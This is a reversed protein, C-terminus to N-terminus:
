SAGGSRISRIFRGIVHAICAVQLHPVDIRCAVRRHLRVERQISSDLSCSLSSCHAERLLMVISSYCAGERLVIYHIVLRVDSVGDCM